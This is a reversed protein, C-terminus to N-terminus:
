TRPINEGSVYEWTMSTVGFGLRRCSASLKSASVWSGASQYGAFVRAAFNYIYIYM